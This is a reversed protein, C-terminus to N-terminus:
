AVGEEAAEEFGEGGDSCARVERAEGYNIKGEYNLAEFTLLESVVL